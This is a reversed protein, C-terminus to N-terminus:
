NGNNDRRDLTMGEPRTGMDAIFNEFSLWRACVTIGRAGYKSRNKPDYGAVRSMM